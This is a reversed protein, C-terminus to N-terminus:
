NRDWKNLIQEYLSEDVRKIYEMMEDFNILSRKDLESGHEWKTHCKMCLYVINEKELELDKRRRRSITHSHTIVNTKECGACLQERERAIEEYVKKLEIKILQEKSLQKLISNHKKIKFNPTRQEELREKNKSECLWHTRNVIPRKTNCDCKSCFDIKINNM